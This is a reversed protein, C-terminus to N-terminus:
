EEQLMIDDFEGFRGYRPALARCTDMVSFALRLPDHRALQGSRSLLDYGFLKIGIQAFSEEDPWLPESGELAYRALLRKHALRTNFICADIIDGGAHANIEHAHRVASYRETEGDQTMINLIYLKIAQTDRLAESVGGVLLNPIISTYLSGPGLIVVDADYIAEVVQPLAVANGPTLSVREINLASGKQAATIATEGIVTSGGEFHAMLNINATTVPLVQGTVALISNMSAVAQEFSGYIEYLALLVLNGFSQGALTGDTFRHALLKEMTNSTNALALICNRIDGPPLMGFERRLKGSGGGDDSVTVIATINDTYEKLGLLLTSLGSGGGIVTVRRGAARALKRLETNYDIDM